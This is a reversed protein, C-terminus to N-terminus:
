GSPAPYVDIIEPIHTTVRPEIDPELLGIAAFDEHM